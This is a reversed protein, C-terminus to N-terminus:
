HGECCKKKTSTGESECCKKKQTAATDKSECCKGKKITFTGETNEEMGNPTTVHVTVKYEGPEKVTSEVAYLGDKMHEAKLTQHKTETGEKWIEFEVTADSITSNNQKVTAQLTPIMNPTPKEPTVKFAVDLKAQTPAAMQDKTAEEKKSNCASFIMMFCTVALGVMAFKIWKTM